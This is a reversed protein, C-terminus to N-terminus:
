DALKIRISGWVTTSEWGPTGPSVDPGGANSNMPYLSNENLLNKGSITFQINKNIEYSAGLNVILGGKATTGAPSYWKSYALVNMNVDFKKIPSLMINLRTVGEPYAKFHLKDGDMALYMSNKAKAITKQEDTASAVKVLAHSLNANIL